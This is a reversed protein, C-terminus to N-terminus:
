HGVERISAYQNKLTASLIPIEIHPQPPGNGTIQLFLNPIAVCTELGKGGTTIFGNRAPCDSDMRPTLRM